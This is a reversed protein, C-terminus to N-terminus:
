SRRRRLLGLAGLGVGLLAISSPEPVVGGPGANFSVTDIAFDDPGDIVAKWIGATVPSVTTVSGASGFDNLNFVSQALQGNSQDFLTLTFQSAGIGNIVDISLGSVASTFTLIMSTSLTGFLNDGSTQMNSWGGSNMVTGGGAGDQITVEAYVLPGVVPNGFCCDVPPSTFEDFNIITAATVMVPCLVLVASLYLLRVVRM